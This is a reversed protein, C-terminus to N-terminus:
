VHWFFRLGLLIVIAILITLPGGVRLYDKFTYGGASMVVINVPHGFPTPFALSCALAVAMGMGRADVGLTQAASIAMPAMILSAVQGGMLQTMALTILLLIAALVIAPPHGFLRLIQKVMQEALGSSLIAASLPWMGAILFIAKWEIARYADEMNLCNSLLLAVAGALTAIAMPLWDVAALILAMLTIAIALWGKHPNTVPDADEELVIFDQESRLVRLQSAHGQVLLADGYHLPTEALDAQLPKGERWFALVNFGYKERFHIERLSKGIFQNHPALVVEALIVADDTVHLPTTPNGLLKLGFSALKAEDPAGQVLIIDEAQVLEGKSPAMQSRGNRILGVVSLGFRQYWQGNAINRGALASGPQVFIHRLNQEIGYLSLLAINLQQDPSTRQASFERPLLKRGVFVM